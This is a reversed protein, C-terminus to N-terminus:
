ELEPALANQQPLSGARLEEIDAAILNLELARALLQEQADLEMRRAELVDFVGIQMANYQRLTDDVFRRAAPELEQATTHHREAAARYSQLLTNARAHVDLSLAALRERELELRARAEARAVDVGGFLPLALGLTLGAGRRGDDRAASVGVSSRELLAERGALGAARAAADVRAEAERLDLSSAEASEALSELALEPAGLEDSRDLEIRADPAGLRRALRLLALEARMHAAASKERAGALALRSLALESEVLNGAAHLEEALRAAAAEAEFREAALRQAQQAAAAEIWARRVDYALRVLTRAAHQREAQMQADAREIRARRTLLEALPQSLDFDVDTDGGLRLVELQALPNRVLEARARAASAVDLAAFAERAEPALALAIAVADDRGIPRELRELSRARDSDPAAAEVRAHLERSLQDRERETIRAVSTCSAILALALTQAFLKM